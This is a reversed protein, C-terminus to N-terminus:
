DNNKGESFPYICFRLHYISCSMIQEGWERNEMEWKGQVM